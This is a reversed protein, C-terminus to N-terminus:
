DLINLNTEYRTAVRVLHILYPTPLATKRGKGAFFEKVLLFAIELNQTSRDPFARQFREKVKEHASQIFADDIAPGQSELAQRESSVQLDEPLIRIEPRPTILDGVLDPTRPELPELVAANQGVTSAPNLLQLINQQSVQHNAKLNKLGEIFREV